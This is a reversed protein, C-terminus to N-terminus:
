EKRMLREQESQAFDWDEATWGPTTGVVDFVSNFRAGSEDFQGGARIVNLIYKQRDTLVVARVPAREIAQAALVADPVARPGRRLSAPMVAGKPILWVPGAKYAGGIRGGKALKLVWIKSFGNQEAFEKATVYETDM